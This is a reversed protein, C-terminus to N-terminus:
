WALEVVERCNWDVIAAKDRGIARQLRLGGDVEDSSERSDAGM